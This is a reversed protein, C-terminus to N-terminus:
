TKPRARRRRKNRAARRKTAVRGMPRQTKTPIDPMVRGRSQGGIARRNDM